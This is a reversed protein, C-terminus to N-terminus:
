DWWVVVGHGFLSVFSMYNLWRYPDGLIYVSVGAEIRPGAEILVIHESGRGTNSAWRRNLARSRNLSKRYNFYFLFYHNLRHQTCRSWLQCSAYITYIHNQIDWVRTYGVPICKPLAFFHIVQLTHAPFYLVCMIVTAWFHLNVM